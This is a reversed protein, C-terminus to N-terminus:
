RPPDADTEDGTADVRVQEADRGALGRGPIGGFPRHRADRERIRGIREPSTLRDTSELQWPVNTVMVGAPLAAPDEAAIRKTTCCTKWWRGVVYEPIFSRSWSARVKARISRVYELVPKTIERYPSDIVTLPVPLGRREWEAQLAPKWTL